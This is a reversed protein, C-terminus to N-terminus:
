AGAAKVGGGWSIYRTCMPTPPQTPGLAMTRGSPNHWHFIRITGFPHIRLYWHCVLSHVSSQFLCSLKVTNCHDSMYFLLQLIDTTLVVKTLCRHQTFGHPAAFVFVWV